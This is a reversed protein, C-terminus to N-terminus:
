ATGSAPAPTVSPLWVVILEAVRSTVSPWSMGNQMMPSRILGVPRFIKWCCSRAPSRDAISRSTAAWTAPPAITSSTLMPTGSVSSGSRSRRAIVMTWSSVSRGIQM